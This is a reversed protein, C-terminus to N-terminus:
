KVSSLEESPSRQQSLHGAARLPPSGAKNPHEHVLASGREPCVGPTNESM